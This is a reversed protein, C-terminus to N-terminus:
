LFTYTRIYLGTNNLLDFDNGGLTRVLLIKLTQCGAPGCYWRLLFGRRREVIEPFGQVRVTEPTIGIRQPIWDMRSRLGRLVLELVGSQHPELGMKLNWLVKASRDLPEVGQFGLDHEFYAGDRLWVRVKAVLRSSDM